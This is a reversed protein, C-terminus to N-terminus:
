QQKLQLFISVVTNFEIKESSLNKKKKKAQQYPLLRFWTEFLMCLFTFFAGIFFFVSGSCVTYKIGM